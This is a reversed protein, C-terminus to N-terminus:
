MLNTIVMLIVPLGLSQAQPCHFLQLEHLLDHPPPVLLLFRVTLTLALFPPLFHLPLEWEFSRQLM